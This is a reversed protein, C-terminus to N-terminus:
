FASVTPHSFFSNHQVICPSFPASCVPDSSWHEKLTDYLYHGMELILALFPFMEEHPAPNSDGKASYRQHCCSSAEQALRMLLFHILFLKKLEQPYFSGPEDPLNWFKKFL